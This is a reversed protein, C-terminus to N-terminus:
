VFVPAHLAPITETAKLEGALRVAVLWPENQASRIMDPLKQVVYKRAEPDRRGIALDAKLSGGCTSAENM